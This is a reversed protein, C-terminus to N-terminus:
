LILDVSEFTKYEAPLSVLSEKTPMYNPTLANKSETRLNYLLLRLCSLWLHASHSRSVTSSSSVVPRGIDSFATNLGTITGISPRQQSLLSTPPDFRLQPQQMHSMRSTLNNQASNRQTQLFSDHLQTVHVTPVRM